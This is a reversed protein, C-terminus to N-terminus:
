WWVKTLSIRLTTAPLFCHIKRCPTARPCGRKANSDPYSGPLQVPRPTPGPSQGWTQWCNVPSRLFTSFNAEEQPEGLSTEQTFVGSAPFSNGSGPSYFRSPPSLRHVAPGEPEKHKWGQFPISEGNQAVAETLVSVLLQSPGSYPQSPLIPAAAGGSEGASILDASLSSLMLSQGSRGRVEPLQQLPRLSSPFTTKQTTPDSSPAM